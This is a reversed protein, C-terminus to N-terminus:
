KELFAKRILQMVREDDVAEIHRAAALKLAPPSFRATAVFFGRKAGYLDMSGIFRQIDPSDVYKHEAYRKCQVVAYEQNKKLEIDVGLDGSAVTVQARYGLRRFLEAIYHEFEFPNMARLERIGHYANLFRQALAAKLGLLCAMIVFLTTM